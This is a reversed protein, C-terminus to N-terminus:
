IERLMGAAGDHWTSTDPQLTHFLHQRQQGNVNKQSLRWSVAGPAMETTDQGTLVSRSYGGTTKQERIKAWRVTKREDGTPWNGEMTARAHQAPPTLVTRRQVATRFWVPKRDQMFLYKIWELRMLPGGREAWKAGHWRLHQQSSQKVHTTYVRMKDHVLMVVTM